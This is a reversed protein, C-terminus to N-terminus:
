ILRVRVARSLRLTGRFSISRNEECGTQRPTTTNLRATEDIQIETIESAANVRAIAPQDGQYLCNLLEGSPLNRLLVTVNLSILKVNIIRPLTGTFSDFRVHWPLTLGCTIAIRVFVFATGLTATCETLFAFLAGRTKAVSTSTNIVKTTSTTITTGTDSTLTENGTLTIPGTTYQLSRLATAASPVLTLFLASTLAALLLKGRTHMATTGENSSGRTRPTMSPIWLLATPFLCQM